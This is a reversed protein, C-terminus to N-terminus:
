RNGEPPSLWDIDVLSSGHEKFYAEMDAVSLSSLDALRQHLKELEEAEVSGPVPPQFLEPNTESLQRIAAALQQSQSTFFSEESITVVEQLLQCIKQEQSTYFNEEPILATM